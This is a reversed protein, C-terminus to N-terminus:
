SMDIEVRFNDVVFMVFRLQEAPCALARSSSTPARRGIDEM